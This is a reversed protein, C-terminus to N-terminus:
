CSTAGLQALDRPRTPRTGSSLEVAPARPLTDVFDSSALAM